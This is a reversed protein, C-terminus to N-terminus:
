GAGTSVETSLDNHVIRDIETAKEGSCASLAIDMRHCSSHVACGAEYADSLNVVFM